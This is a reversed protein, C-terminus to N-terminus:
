LAEQFRKKGTPNLREGVVRVGNIEVMENGSCIGTKAKTPEIKKFERSEFASKLESIFEPSTGCCGGAYDIGIEGFDAM